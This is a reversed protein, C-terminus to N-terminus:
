AARFREAGPQQPVYRSAMSGTVIGVTELYFRVDQASLQYMMRDGGRGTSSMFGSGDEKLFLADGTFFHPLGAVFNLFNEACGSRDLIVREVDVGMEGATASIAYRLVNLQETLIIRSTSRNSLNWDRDPTRADRCVLTIRQSKM